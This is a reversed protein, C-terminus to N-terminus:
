RREFGYRSSCVRYVYVVYYICVNEDKLVKILNILSRLRTCEVQYAEKYFIYGSLAETSTYPVSKSQYRIWDSLRVIAAISSNEYRITGPM